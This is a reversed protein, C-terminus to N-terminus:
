PLDVFIMEINHGSWISLNDLPRDLLKLCSIYMGHISILKRGVTEESLNQIDWWSLVEDDMEIFPYFTLDLFRAM